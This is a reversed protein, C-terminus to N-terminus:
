VFNSKPQASLKSRVMEILYLGFDATSLRDCQIQLLDIEHVDFGNPEEIGALVFTDRHQM